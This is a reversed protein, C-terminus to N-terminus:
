VRPSVIFLVICFCLVCLISLWVYLVLFCVFRTILFCLINILVYGLAFSVYCLAILIFEWYLERSIM